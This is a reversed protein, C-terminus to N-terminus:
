RSGGLRETNRSTGDGRGDTSAAELGRRGAAAMGEEESNATAELGEQAAAEVEEAYATAEPDEQAATATM